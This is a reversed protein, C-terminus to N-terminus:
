RRQTGVLSGRALVQGDVWPLLEAFDVLSADKPVARDLAYVHFGYRHTGHGPLARPGQYGSRGFAASVFRVTPNEPDLDGEKLAPVSADVLAITHLVPRPLPVDVDEIVLLLQATGAPLNEWAIAPSANDGVGEGAHVSPIAGGDAFSTSTM